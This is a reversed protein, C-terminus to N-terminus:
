SHPAVRTAAWKQKIRERLKFARYREYCNWWRGRGCKPCHGDVLHSHRHFACFWDKICVSPYESM